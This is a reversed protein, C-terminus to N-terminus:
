FIICFILFGRIWKVISRNPEFDYHKEIYEFRKNYLQLEPMLFGTFLTTIGRSTEKWPYDFNKHALFADAEDSYFDPLIGKVYQKSDDKIAHVQNAYYLTGMVWIGMVFMSMTPYGYGLMMKIGNVVALIFLGIVMNYAALVIEHNHKICDKTSQDM